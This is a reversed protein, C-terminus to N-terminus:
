GRDANRAVPAEVEVVIAVGEGKAGTVVRGEAMGVRDAADGAAPDM